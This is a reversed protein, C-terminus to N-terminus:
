TLSDAIVDSVITEPPAAMIQSFRQVIDKINNQHFSLSEADKFVADVYFQNKGEDFSAVWTLPGNVTQKAKVREACSILLDRTEAAKGDQAILIVHHHQM